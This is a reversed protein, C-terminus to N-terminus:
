GHSTVRGIRSICSILIAAHIADDEEAELLLHLTQPQGSSCVDSKNAPKFM